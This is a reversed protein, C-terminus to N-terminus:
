DEQRSSKLIEIRPWNQYIFLKRWQWWFPFLIALKKAEPHDEDLKLQIETFLLIGSSDVYLRDQTIAKLHPHHIEYKGDSLESLTFNELKKPHGGFFEITYKELLNRTNKVATSESVISNELSEPVKQPINTCWGTTLLFSVVMGKIFLELNETSRSLLSRRFSESTFLPTKYIALM